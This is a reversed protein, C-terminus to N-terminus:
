KVEVINVKVFKWGLRKASAVSANWRKWYKTAWATGERIAVHNFNWADTKTNALTDEYINGDPDKMAWLAKMKGGQTESVERELEESNGPTDVAVTGSM